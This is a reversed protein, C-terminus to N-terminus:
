TVDERGPAWDPKEIVIWGEAIKQEAWSDEFYYIGPREPEPQAFWNQGDEAPLYIAKLGAGNGEHAEREGIVMGWYPKFPPKPRDLLFYGKVEYSRWLGPLSHADYKATYELATFDDQVDVGEVRIKDGIRIDKPEIPTKENTM